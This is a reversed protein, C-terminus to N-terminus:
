GICKATSVNSLRETFSVCITILFGAPLSIYRVIVCGYHILEIDLQYFIVTVNYHSNAQTELMEHSAMEQLDTETKALTSHESKTRACAPTCAQLPPQM